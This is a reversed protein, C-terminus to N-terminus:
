DYLGWPFPSWASEWALWTNEQRQLDGCRAQGGRQRQQGFGLVERGPQALGGEQFELGRGELEEIANIVVAVVLRQRAYVRYVM